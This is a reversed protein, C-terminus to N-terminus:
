NLTKLWEGIGKAMLPPVANGVQTYQPCEERRRLGGTSKPGLFVYTDGFSQLRAIERVTLIRDQRYHIYDDPLTTVTRAPENAKIRFMVMKKIRLRSPLTSVSQGQEMASFRELTNKKHKPADHNHLMRSNKRMEVQYSNRPEKMYRQASEGAKLFDLDSIATFTSVPNSKMIQFSNIDHKSKRSGFIFLRKRSQPVGFDVANFVRKSVFFGLNDFSSEISKILNGNDISLLGVVNEMIFFKPELKGVMKVFEKFLSNRPDNIVRKGAFSVGQCPPGGAVLFINNGTIDIIESTRIKRIDKEIMRTNPHNFKYTMAAHKNIENAVAVNLGAQEFGESLGGAGAMCDCAIDDNKM